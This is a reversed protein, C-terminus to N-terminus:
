AAQSHTQNHLQELLGILRQQTQEFREIAETNREVLSIVIELHDHESIMRQHAESLERERKRSLAREWVWLAGMLGAVGFQTLPEISDIPM